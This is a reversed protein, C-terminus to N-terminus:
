PGALAAPRISAAIVRNQQRVLLHRSTGLTDIRHYAGVVYGTDAYRHHIAHM